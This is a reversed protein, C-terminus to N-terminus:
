NSKPTVPQGNTGPKPTNVDSDPELRGHGRAVEPHKAMMAKCNPDKSANTLDAECARMKDMDSSSVKTKTMIAKCATSANREPAKMAKCANFTAADEPSSVLEAAFAGSGMLGAVVTLAFMSKMPRKM